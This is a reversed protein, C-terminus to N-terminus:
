NLTNWVPIQLFVSLTTADNIIRTKNEHNLINLRESDKLVLNLQYNESDKPYILQLAHVGEFKYFNQHDRGFSDGPEKRGKWFFGKQKDFIIPVTNHFLFYCGLLIFLLGLAVAYVPGRDFFIFITGIGSIIFAVYLLLSIYSVRFEMRSAGVKILRHTSFNASINLDTASNWGTAIAIPDNFISPDFKSRPTIFKHVLKKLM